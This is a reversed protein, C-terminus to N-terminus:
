STGLCSGGTATNQKSAIGNFISRIAESSQVAPVDARFFPVFDGPKSPRKAYPALAAACIQATAFYVDPLGYLRDYALLEALEDAALTRELEKM